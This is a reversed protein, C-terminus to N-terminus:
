GADGGWGSLITTWHSQNKWNTGTLEQVVWDNTGPLPGERFRRGSVSFYSWEKWNIDNHVALYAVRLSQNNENITRIVEDLTANPTCDKLALQRAMQAM